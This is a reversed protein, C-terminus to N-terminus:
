GPRPGGGRAMELLRFRQLKGTATRPLEAVLVIEQPRQHPPLRADLQARLAVALADAADGRPVVFLVAKILGSAAEAGVVGAELVGPHALAAAEVASPDVWMGAVKFRDDARGRHVYRGEADREFVDGTRFWGDVFAHRSPEPRRWYGRAASETRVWLVGREGDAVARGEADALRAETGPVPWGTSARRSQGPRNSLVMFVTETAGLGDLIPLGFRERWADYIQGPLPEGASVCARASAFTDPPLDARLLRAYLTPVSFFLTPRERRMVSAVLGPDPWAPELITRARALLPILLANGLAYAFFLKSTAFVRDGPGVGLVGQGYHRGALLTRHGHVAAKPTGTTGSTYLWFAMADEAVPEAVVPADSVGDVLEPFGTVAPGAAVREARSSLALPLLGPDAVLAAPTADEVLARLDDPSLRTGLPVAVAGIKIAALFTGAFAVGDPLLLAVRQGPEVGLRRLGRAARDTIARLEGYTM